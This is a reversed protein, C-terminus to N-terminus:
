TKAGCPPRTVPHTKIWDAFAGSTVALGRVQEGCGSLAVPLGILRYDGGSRAFIPSGSDGHTADCNHTITDGGQSQNCTAHSRMSCRRLRLRRPKDPSASSRRAPGQASGEGGAPRQRGPFLFERPVEGSRSEAYQFWVVPRDPPSGRYVWMFSQQTAERGPEDLVQLRTEDIHIVRGQYLVGKM